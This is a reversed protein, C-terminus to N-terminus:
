WESDDGSIWYELKWGFVYRAGVRVCIKRVGLKHLLDCLTILIHVDHGRIM